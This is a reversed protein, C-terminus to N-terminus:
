KIDAVTASDPLVIPAHPVVEFSSDGHKALVKAGGAVPAFTIESITWKGLKADLPLRGGATCRTQEKGLGCGLSIGGNVAGDPMATVGISGGFNSAKDLSVDMTVYDGQTIKVKEMHATGAEQARSVHVSIVTALALALGFALTGLYQRTKVM